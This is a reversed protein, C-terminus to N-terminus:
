KVVTKWNGLILYHPYCSTQPPPCFVLSGNYSLFGLLFLFSINSLLLHVSPGQFNGLCSYSHFFDKFDMKKFSVETHYVRGGRGGREGGGGWVSFGGLQSTYIHWLITLRMIKKKIIYNNRMYPLRLWNDPTDNLPLPRPNRGAVVFM